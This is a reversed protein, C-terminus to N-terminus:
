AQQDDQSSLAQSLDVRSPVHFFTKILHIIRDIEVTTLEFYLPLRLLCEAFRDAHPLERGDHKHCYYPSSHLPTYHFVAQVGQHNLYTILQTRAQSSACVLYFIHGNNSAFDALHPLEVLGLAQLSFLGAYYRNWIKKRKAQIVDLNELQAFLFAAIMDSAYFSSGVDVWTYKDVAGRFFESRNTGKEWIIEARKLYSEENIVLLGGEGSIINKTEHFSFCALHSLTGLPYAKYYSDIAQAADEILYLNYQKALASIKEMDCAVGAYHVVVIAKTRVTILTEIQDADMNPHLPSSDVFVPHAGRLVFANATSVFTFSPMIIEDGPKADILIAAMELAATCSTTLLAKKFGYRAKLLDQCKKTFKGNGSIKEQNIAEFIYNLEKGTFYPKNFSIM